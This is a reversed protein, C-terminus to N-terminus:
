AMVAQGPAHRLPMQRVRLDIPWYAPDHSVRGNIPIQKVFAPVRGVRCQRIISRAAPLFEDPGCFRGARSGLSECGVIALSLGRIADTPITVPGLLPELSLFRVAAPCQLLHPYYEDMTKQNVPSCGLWVNALPWQELWLDWYPSATSEGNAQAFLEALRAIRSQVSVDCLPGSERDRLYEAMREPRKTLVQFTHRDALAMVAFVKDVFDFPVDEHFLDSMSNVFIMRPKKWRLPITLDKDVLNIAGNFTRVGNHLVTLGRYKPKGMRDLRHAM